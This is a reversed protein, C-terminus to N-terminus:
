EQIEKLFDSLEKLEEHAELCELVIQERNSEEIAEPTAEAFQAQIRAEEDQMAERLNTPYNAHYRKISHVTDENYAQWIMSGWEHRPDSKPVHRGAAPRRWNEENDEPILTHRHVAGTQLLDRIKPWPGQEACRHMIGGWFDGTADHWRRANETYFTNTFARWTEYRGSGHREYVNYFGASKLTHVRANLLNATGMVM